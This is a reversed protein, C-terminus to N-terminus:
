NENESDLSSIDLKDSYSSLEPAQSNFNAVLYSVNGCVSLVVAWPWTAAVGSVSLYAAYGTATTAGALKSWSRNRSLLAACIFFLWAGGQLSHMVAGSVLPGMRVPASPRLQIKPMMAQLLQARRQRLFELLRHLFIWGGVVLNGILAFRRTYRLGWRSNIEEFASVRDNILGLQRQLARLQREVGRGSLAPHLHSHHSSAAFSSSSSSSAAAAAAAAVASVVPQGDLGVFSPVSQSRRMADQSDSAFSVTRDGIVDTVFSATRKMCAVFLLLLRKLM